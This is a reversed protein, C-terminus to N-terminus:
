PRVILRRSVTGSWNGAKDQSRIFLNHVGTPINTGITGSITSGSATMATGNGQGPDIDIFFEGGAVGSLADSAMATIAAINGSRKIIPNTSTNVITPNTKDISLPLSGTACNAGPDCSQGSAYLINAGEINAITNTPDTPTGSSPLPDVSSWDIVVDANYWGYSNASRDPLGTVVPPTTDIIQEHVFIDTQGNTDINVLNTADSRFAVFHGDGSIQVQNSSNDNAQSGSSDVSVRTTTDLLTDRVFIDKKTNTDGPVLNTAGSNFAIYRGNQSITSSSSEGNGQNDDDTVSVRAIANETYDYVFVDYVNNTDGPVLNSAGSYFSLSQGGCAMSDMASGGDSGLTVNTLANLQLDLLFIDAFWAINTDDAVLNNAYSAFAVYRGDCSIQANFSSGDGELGSISVSLRSTTGQTRDRLFIDVANNSDGPVLDTATSQFVVYRGDDSVASAVSSGNAVGNSSNVSILETTEQQLDRLFVDYANNNDGSFLNSAVSSFVAYRGNSSISNSSVDTDANAEQGSSSVNIRQIAGSNKDKLFLDPQNNTDGNVLNSAFSSFLVKQGDYTIDLAGWNLNNSQNGSADTSILATSGPTAYAVPSILGFLSILVGMEVLFTSKIFKQVRNM